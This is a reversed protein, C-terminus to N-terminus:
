NKGSAEQGYQVLLREMEQEHRRCEEKVNREHQRNELVMLAMFRQLSSPVESIVATTETTTTTTTSTTPMAVGQAFHRTTRRAGATLEPPSKVGAPEDATKGEEEPRREEAREEGQKGTQARGAATRGAGRGSRRHSNKARERSENRKKRKEAPKTKPEDNKKLAESRGPAQEEMIKGVEEQFEAEEEKETLEKEKQAQAEDRLRTIENKMTQVGALTTSLMQQLVQPDTASPPRPLDEPLPVKVESTRPDRVRGVSELFIVAPLQPVPVEPQPEAPGDPERIEGDEETEEESDIWVQREPKPAPKPAGEKGAEEKKEGSRAKAKTRKANRALAEAKNADQKSEILTWGTDDHKIPSPEM